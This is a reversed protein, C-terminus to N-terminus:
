AIGRHLFLRQGKLLLPVVCRGFVEKASTQGLTLSREAGLMDVGECSHVIERVQEMIAAVIRFRLSKVPLGQFDALSDQTRVMGM